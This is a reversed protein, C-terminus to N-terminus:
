KDSLKTIASRLAIQVWDAKEQELAERLPALARTDGLAALARAAEYRLAPEPNRLMDIMPNFAKPTPNKVLAQVVQRRFGINEDQLLSLVADAILPSQREKLVYLASRKFQTKDQLYPILAKTVQEDKYPMLSGIARIKVWESRDAQLVHLFAQRIIPHKRDGLYMYMSSRTYDEPEKAIIDCLKSIEEDDIMKILTKVAEFREEKMNGSTAYTYLFNRTERSKDPALVELLEAREASNMKVIHTRIDEFRKLRGLAKIAAERDEPYPSETAQKPLYLIANEGGTYGLLTILYTKHYRSATKLSKLIYASATRGFPSLAPGLQQRDNVGYHSISETIIPLASPTDWKCLLILLTGHHTQGKKWSLELMIPIAKKGVSEFKQRAAAREDPFPNRSMSRPPQWDWLEAYLKPHEMWGLLIQATIREQWSTTNALTKELFSKVDEKEVVLFNRKSIYCALIQEKSVREKPNFGGRTGIRFHDLYEESPFAVVETFLKRISEPDLGAQANECVVIILGILFLTQFQKSLYNM